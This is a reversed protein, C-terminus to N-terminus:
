SKSGGIIVVRDSIHQRYKFAERFEREIEPPMTIWRSLTNRSYESLARIIRSATEMKVVEGGDLRVRLANRFEDRLPDGQRTLAVSYAPDIGRREALKQAVSLAIDAQHGSTVAHTALEHRDRLACALRRLQPHRSECWIDQQVLWQHERMAFIDETSLDEPRSASLIRRMLPTTEVNELGLDRACKVMGCNLQYLALARPHELAERYIRERTLALTEIARLASAEVCLNGDTLITLAKQIERNGNHNEGGHMSSLDRRIWDGRDVNWCGGSLLQILFPPAKSDEESILSCAREITRGAQAPGYAHTLRDRISCDSRLVKCALHEHVDPQGPFLVKYAGHSGPAMHCLDHAVLALAFPESWEDITARWAASAQERLTRLTEIGLAAVGLVHSLRSNNASPYMVGLTGSQDIEALRTIWPDDIVTAVLRSARCTTPFVISGGYVPDAIEISKNETTSVQSARTPIIVIRGGKSLTDSLGTGAGKQSGVAGDGMVAPEQM